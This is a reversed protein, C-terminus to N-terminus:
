VHFLFRLRPIPAESTSYSRAVIIKNLQVLWSEFKLGRAGVRGGDSLCWEGEGMAAGVAGEVKRQGEDEGM